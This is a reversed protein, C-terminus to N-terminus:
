VRQQVYLRAAQTRSPASSWPVGSFSVYLPLQASPFASICIDSRFNLSYDADVIFHTM